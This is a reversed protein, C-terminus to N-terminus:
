TGLRRVVRVPVSTDFSNVRIRWTVLDAGVFKFQKLALRTHSHKHTHTHTHTHTHKHTHTHTYARACAHTRTCAGKFDAYMILNLDQKRAFLDVRSADTHICRHRHTGFVFFLGLFHDIYTCFMCNIHVCDSVALLPSIDNIKFSRNAWCETTEEKRKKRERASEQMLMQGNSHYM